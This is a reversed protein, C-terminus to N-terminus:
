RTRTKLTRRSCTSPCTSRAPSITSGAPTRATGASSAPRSIAQSQCTSSAKALTASAATPSPISRGSNIEANVEGYTDSFDPKNTILRITGAQSSAGYLTGQPGALAEVRAIDFVHVDLAGTITTIPQEDLYTGVSPLSASHNANEGSAVGRFYVNAFGPGSSKYSLSPVLKAYDDFQDVQLDDLTKTTFATIAVPVDQLNESRRQATVIIDERDSDIESKAATGPAEGSSTDQASAVGASALMTSGLLATAFRRHFHM